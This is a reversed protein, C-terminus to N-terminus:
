LMALVLWRHDRCLAAVVSGEGLGRKSWARAFANSQIELQHYTVPGLEYLLGVATADRVTDMLSAGAFPGFRHVARISRLGEDLRPFPILGARWMVDVSRVTDSVREALATVTPPTKM